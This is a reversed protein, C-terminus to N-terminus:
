TLEFGNLDITSQFRYVIYIALIIVTLCCSKAKIHIIAFNSDFM